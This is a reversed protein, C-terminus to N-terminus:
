WTGWETASDVVFTTVGGPATFSSAGGVGAGNAATVVAGSKLRIRVRYGAARTGPDPLVVEAANPLAVRTRWDAAGGLTTALDFAGATGNSYSSTEGTPTWVPKADKTRPASHFLTSRQKEYVMEGLMTPPPMTALAGQGTAVPGTSAVRSGSIPGGVDLGVPVRKAQSNIEMHSGAVGNGTAGQPWEGVVRHNAGALLEVKPPVSKTSSKTYNNELVTNNANAVRIVAHETHFDWHCDLLKNGNCQPGRNDTLGWYNTAGITVAVYPASATATSKVTEFYINQFVNNFSAQEIVIQGLMADNSQIVGGLFYNTTSHTLLVGIESCKEVNLGIFVNGNFPRGTAIGVKCAMVLLGLYVSNEATSQYGVTFNAISVNSWRQRVPWGGGDAPNGKNGAAQSIWGHRVGVGTGAGVIALDALTSGEAGSADLVDLWPQAEALGEPAMLVTGQPGLDPDRWVPDGLSRRRVGDAAFTAGVGRWMVPLHGSRTIDPGAALETSVIPDVLYRGAPILVERRSVQAARTAAVLAAKNQAASKSPHMGGAFSPDAASVIGISRATAHWAVSTASSADSTLAAVQEDAPAVATTAKALAEAADARASEATERVGATADAVMAPMDAIVQESTRALAESVTRSTAADAAAMEALPLANRVRDSWAPLRVDSGADVIIEDLGDIWFAPVEGEPGSVTTRPQQDPGYVTVPQDTAPDIATWPTDALWRLPAQPDTLLFPAYRRLDM